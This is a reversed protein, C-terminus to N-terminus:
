HYDILDLDFIDGKEDIRFILRWNRSISLAWFGALNGSLKHLNGGPINARDIKPATDLVM